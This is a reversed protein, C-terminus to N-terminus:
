PANLKKRDFVDAIMEVIKGALAEKSMMPLSTVEGDATLIKATSTAAGITANADNAIIM